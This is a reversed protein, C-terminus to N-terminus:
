LAWPEHTSFLSAQPRVSMEGQAPHNIISRDPFLPFSSLHVIIDCLPTSVTILAFSQHLTWMNLFAHLCTLAQPSAGTFSVIYHCQMHSKASVRGTRGRRPVGDEKRWWRGGSCLRSAELGTVQLTQKNSKNRNVSRSSVILPSIIAKGTRRWPRLHGNGRSTADAETYHDLHPLGYRQSCEPTSCFVVCSM